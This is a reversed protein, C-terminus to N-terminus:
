KIQQIEQVSLQAPQDTQNHLDIQTIDGNAESLLIHEVYQQGSLDIKTLFQKWAAHKPLLLLQWTNGQQQAQISFNDQLHSFDGNLLSFIMSTIMGINAQQGADLKFQTTGNQSASIEQKNLKLDSAFPKLTQWLLGYDRSLVFKGSSLLPKQLGKLQKQQKFQGRLVMPKEIRQSISAFDDVAYSNKMMVLATMLLIMLAYVRKRQHWLSQNFRTVANRNSWGNM